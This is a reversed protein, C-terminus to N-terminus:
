DQLTFEYGRYPAMFVSNFLESPIHLLDMYIWYHTTVVTKGAGNMWKVLIHAYRAWFQEIKIITCPEFGLQGNDASGSLM